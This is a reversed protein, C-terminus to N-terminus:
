NCGQAASAAAISYLPDWSGSYPPATQAANHHRPMTTAPMTTAHCQPPAANHHRPLRRDPSSGVQQVRPM